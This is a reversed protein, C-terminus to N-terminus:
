IVESLFCFLIYVGNGQSGQQLKGITPLGNVLNILEMYDTPKNSLVQKPVPIKNISLFQGNYFKNSCAELGFVSGTSFINLNENLHRLVMISFAWSASDTFRPIIAAYEKAVFKKSKDKSRKYIRDYGKENNSTFCYFDTPREVECEFGKKGFEEKLRENSHGKKDFSLILIKKKKM